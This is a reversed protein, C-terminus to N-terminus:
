QRTWVAGQPYDKPTYGLSSLLAAVCREGINYYRSRNEKNDTIFKVNAEAALKIEDVDIGERNPRNGEASIFVIDKSNYNGCNVIEKPLNTAYWHTSSSESGRGIFKNAPKAKEKDKEYYYHDRMPLEM